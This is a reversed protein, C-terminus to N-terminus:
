QETRELNMRGKREGLKGPSLIDHSSCVAFSSKHNVDKRHDFHVRDVRRLKECEDTVQIEASCRETAEGDLREVLQQKPDLAPTAVCM